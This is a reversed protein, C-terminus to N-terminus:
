FVDGTFIKKKKKTESINKLGTQVPSQHVIGDTSIFHVKQIEFLKVIQLFLASM